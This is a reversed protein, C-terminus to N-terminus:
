TYGVPWSSISTQWSRLMPIFVKWIYVMWNHLLVHDIRRESKAPSPRTYVVFHWTSSWYPYPSFWCSLYLSSWPIAHYFYSLTKSISTVWSEWSQFIYREHTNPYRQEPSLIVNSSLSPDGPNQWFAPHYFEFPKPRLRRVLSTEVAPISRKSFGTNKHTCVFRAVTKKRHFNHSLDANKNANVCRLWLQTVLVLFKLSHIALLGTAVFMYSGKLWLAINKQPPRRGGVICRVKDVKISTGIVM